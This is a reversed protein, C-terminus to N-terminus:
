VPNLLGYTTFPERVHFVAVDVQSAARTRASTSPVNVSDFVRHHEGLLNEVNTTLANVGKKAAAFRALGYLYRPMLSPRMPGDIKGHMAAHDDALTSLVNVFIL